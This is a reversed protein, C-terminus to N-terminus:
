HAKGKKAKALLEELPATPPSDPDPVVLGSARAASISEETDPDFRDRVGQLIKAMQDDTLREVGAHDLQRRRGVEPHYGIDAPIPTRPVKNQAKMEQLKKYIDWHIPSPEIGQAPIGYLCLDRYLMYGLKEAHETLILKGHALVVYRLGPKDLVTNVEAGLVDGTPGVVPEIIRTETKKKGARGRTIITAELISGDARRIHPTSLASNNM